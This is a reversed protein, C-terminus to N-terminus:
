RGARKNALNAVVSLATPSMFQSMLGKRENYLIFKIKSLDEKTPGAELLRELECLFAGVRQQEAKTREYIRYSM